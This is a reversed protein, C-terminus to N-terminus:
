YFPAAIIALVILCIVTLVCWICFIGLQNAIGAAYSLGNTRVHYISTVVFWLLLIAPLGILMIIASGIPEIFLTAFAALVLLPTLSLPACTFPRLSESRAAANIGRERSVSTTASWCALLYLYVITGGICGAAVNLCNFGVVMAPLACSGAFAGMCIKRFLEAEEPDVEVLHWAQAALRWPTFSVMLVTRAFAIIPGSRRQHLWPIAAAPLRDPDYRM